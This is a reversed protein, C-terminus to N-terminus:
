LLFRKVTLRAGLQYYNRNTRDPDEKLNGQLFFQFNPQLRIAWRESLKRDFGIGTNISLVPSRYEQNPVAELDEIM